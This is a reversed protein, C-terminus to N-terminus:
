IWGISVACCYRRVYDIAVTTIIPLPTVTFSSALAEVAGRLPKDGIVGEFYIHIYFIVGFLIIGHFSAASVAIAGTRNTFM